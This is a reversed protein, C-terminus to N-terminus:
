PIRNAARGHISLRELDGALEAYGELVGQPDRAARNRLRTWHRQHEVLFRREVGQHIAEAYARRLRRDAALIDPRMCWARELRDGECGGPASAAKEAKGDKKEAAPRPPADTSREERAVKRDDSSSPSPTTTVTPKVLQPAPTAPIPREFPNAAVGTAPALPARDRLDAFRLGGVGAVGILLGATAAALLPGAAVRRRGTAPLPTASGKVAIEITRPPAADAAEATGFIAAMDNRVDALLLRSPPQRVPDPPPASDVIM